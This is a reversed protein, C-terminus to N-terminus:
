ATEHSLWTSDDEIEVGVHVEEVKSTGSLDEGRGVVEAPGILQEVEGIGFGNGAM